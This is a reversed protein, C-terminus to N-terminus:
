TWRSREVSTIWTLEMGQGSLLLRKAADASELSLQHSFLPFRVSMAKPPWCTADKHGSRRLQLGWWVSFVFCRALGCQKLWKIVWCSSLLSRGRVPLLGVLSHSDCSLWQSAVMLLVGLKSLHVKQKFFGEWSLGKGQLLANRKKTRRVQRHNQLLKSARFQLERGNRFLGIKKQYFLWTKNKLNAIADAKKQFGKM